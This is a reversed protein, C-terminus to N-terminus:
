IKYIGAVPSNVSGIWLVGDKEEVESISTWKYKCIESDVMDVIEGDESLRVALGSARYKALFSHIRVLDVPLSMLFKGVWQNGIVWKAIKDKRSHLGVWFGGRPSRKINDPFGPLQAAFIECKSGAKTTKLWCRLVRSNTTEAVLIYNGDKSLAVGNPFALNDQLIKVRKTEPDYKM